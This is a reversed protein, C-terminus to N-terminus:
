KSWEDFQEGLSKFNIYNRLKSNKQKLEWNEDNLKKCEKESQEELIEVTSLIYYLDSGSIKYITYFDINTFKAKIEKMEEDM